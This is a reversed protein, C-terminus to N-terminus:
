RWSNAICKLRMLEDLSFVPFSAVAWVALATAYGHAFRLTVEVACSSSRRLNFFCRVLSAVLKRPQAFSTLWVASHAPQSPFSFPYQTRLM